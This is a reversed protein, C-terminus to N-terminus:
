PVSISGEIIEGPEYTWDTLLIDTVKFTFKDGSKAKVPALTLVANGAGDTVATAGTQVLEDNFYWNGVVTAGAVPAGPQSHVLVTAQAKTNKGASVLGMGIEAVHLTPQSDPTASAENSPGSEVELVDAAKVVYFYTSGNTLGTDTFTSQPVLAGNVQTYPGGAAAARYVNYGALDSEGNDDWDLTVQSDGGTAELGAPAAPAVNTLTAEAEDSADSENGSGDEATVVYWCTGEAGVYDV